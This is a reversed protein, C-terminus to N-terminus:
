VLVGVILGLNWLGARCIQDSCHQSGDFAFNRSQTRRQVDKLIVFGHNFHDDFASTWCHSMHESGLSNGMIPQKVSDVQFGFTLDFININLRTECNHPRCAIEGTISPIMKETQEVDHAKRHVRETM